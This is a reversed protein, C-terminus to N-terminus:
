VIDHVALCGAMPKHGSRGYAGADLVAMPKGAIPGGPLCDAMGGGHAVRTQQNLVVASTYGNPIDGVTWTSFRIMIPLNEL